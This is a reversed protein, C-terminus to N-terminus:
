EIKLIVKGSNRNEELYQHAEKVSGWPFVKDIVPKIRGTKLYNYCHERFDSVLKGRYQLSRSRLTSGIITLRKTLIPILSLDESGKGGLFGLMVLKGDVALSELNKKFYSTGIFDIVLNVGSPTQEEIIQNFEAQRYDICYDAGLQICIKHKAKSATVLVEAGLTKALQICATGVGSAGAHILVKEDPKLGGLWSLAQWGTLFAEMIGAAQNMELNDPIQSILSKHVAVYQAYGGGSLLAMVKAGEWEQAGKSTKVVSGAIELGLIPSAGPPPPYQGQRQLIDARNLAAAAVEILVEDDSLDPVPITGFYM